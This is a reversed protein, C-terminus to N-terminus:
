FSETARLDIVIIQTLPILMETLRLTHEVDEVVLAGM